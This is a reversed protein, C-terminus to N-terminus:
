ANRVQSFRNANATNILAPRVRAPIARMLDAAFRENMALAAERDPLVTSLRVLVGDPIVGAIQSRLKAMRQEGGDVPLAEGIRTWYSIHETHGPATATLTRGPITVGPGLEIQVPQSASVVFGFAPYCVEPRHLQLLDNQTDGYAILLMVYEDPGRTYLRAVTQTYLQSALSDESQPVVVANSERYRWGAFSKPIAQELKADGVLSMRGRPTMATAAGAAVLCGAGILLDRRQIM